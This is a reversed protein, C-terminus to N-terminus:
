TSKFGAPGMGRYPLTAFQCFSIVDFSGSLTLHFHTWEMKTEGTDREEKENGGLHAGGFIDGSGGGAPLAKLGFSHPRVFLRDSPAPRGLRNLWDAAKWARLPDIKDKNVPVNVSDVLALWM